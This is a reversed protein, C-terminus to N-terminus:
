RSRQTKRGLDLEIAAGAPAQPRQDFKQETIGRTLSAAESLRQDRGLQLLKQYRMKKCVLRVVIRALQRLPCGCWCWPVHTPYQVVDVLMQVFWDCQVPENHDASHRPAAEMLM